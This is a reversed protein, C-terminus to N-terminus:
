YLLNCCRLFHQCPKRNYSVQSYMEDTITQDGVMIVASQWTTDTITRDGYDCGVAM